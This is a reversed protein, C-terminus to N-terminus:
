NTLNDTFEIPIHAAFRKPIITTKLTQCKEQIFREEYHSTVLYANTGIGLREILALGNDQSHIFEYDILYIVQQHHHTQHWVVLDDLQNLKILQITHLRLRHTWVEHISADDDVVVITTNPSIILKATFWAPPTVIPLTLRITTGQNLISTIAFTGKWLEITSKARALGLGTGEKGVSVKGELITPLLHDSIGCGTDEIGLYLNGAQEQLSFIIKGKFAISEMANQILNALLRQFESSSVNAFLSYTQEQFQLVFELISNKNQLRKESIVRLFIDAILEPKLPMIKACATKKYQTLLNNAIDHIRFVANRILLREREELKDTYKMAMDLATLPSRIDHAVQSALRGIAAEHKQDVTDKVQKKWFHLRDLLYQLEELYKTNSPPLQNAHLKKAIHEVPNAIYRNVITKIRYRNWAALSILFLFLLAGYLYFLNISDKKVQIALDLPSAKEVQFRGLTKGQLFNVSDCNNCSHISTNTAQLGKIIESKLLYLTWAYHCEGLNDLSRNLYCLSLTVYYPTLTGQKFLLQQDSRIRMGAVTSLNVRSLEYLLDPTLTKRTRQGSRLYDIFVTSNALISLKESLTSKDLAITHELQQKGWSEFNKEYHRNIFFLITLSVYAFFIFSGMISQSISKRLSNLNRIKM